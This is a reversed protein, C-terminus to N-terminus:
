IGNHDGHKELYEEALRYLNPDDELLGIALNCDRHIFDRLKGTLHDHDL